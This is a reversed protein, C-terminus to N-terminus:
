QCVGIVGTGAPGSPTSCNGSMTVNTGTVTGTCCPTGGGICNRGKPLCCNGRLGGGSNSFTTCCAGDQSRCHGSNTNYFQEGWAKCFPTESSGPMCSKSSCTDQTGGFLIDGTCADGDDCTVGSNPVGLCGPAFTTSNIAVMGCHDNTTCVNGDDCPVD